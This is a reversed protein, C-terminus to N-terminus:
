GCEEGDLNSLGGRIGLSIWGEAPATIFVWQLMGETTNVTHTENTFQFTYVGPALTSLYTQPNVSPQSRVTLGSEPVVRCTVAPLVATEGTTVGGSNAVPGSVPNGSGPNAAANSAPFLQAITQNCGGLTPEGGELGLTIWGENPASIKAWRRNGNTEEVIRTEGTFRFNQQAPPITALYTRSSVEPRSRVVLGDSSLVQCTAAIPNLSPTTPPTPTLTGSSSGSNAAAVIRELARLCSRGGLNSDGNVIGSSIWGATPSSIRFWRRTLNGEQTTQTEGTFRIAAPNPPLTSLYSGGPRDRVTLGDPSLVECAIPPLNTISSQTNDADLEACGVSPSLYRSQVWGAVPAIIRAWGNETRRELRVLQSRSLTGRTSSDLSPETYVGIETNTQRCGLDTTETRTSQALRTGIEPQKQSLESLGGAPTRYHHGLM